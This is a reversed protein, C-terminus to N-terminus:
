RLVLYSVAGLGYDEDRIEGFFLRTEEGGLSHDFTHFLGCLAPSLCSAANLGGSCRYCAYDAKEATEL